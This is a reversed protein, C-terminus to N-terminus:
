SSEKRSKSSFIVETPWLIFSFVYCVAYVVRYSINLACSFSFLAQKQIIKGKFALLHDSIERLGAAYSSIEPFNHM